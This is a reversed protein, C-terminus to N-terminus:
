MAERAEAETKAEDGENAQDFGASTVCPVEPPPGEGEVGFIGRASAASPPPPDKKGPFLRRFQEPWKPSSALKNNNHRPEYKTM